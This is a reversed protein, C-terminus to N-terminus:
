KQLAKCAIIGSEKNSSRIISSCLYHVEIIKKLSSVQQQNISSLCRNGSNSLLNDTTSVVSDPSSNTTTISDNGYSSPPNESKLPPGNQLRSQLLPMYNSTLLNQLTSTPPENLTLVPSNPLIFENLSEQQSVSPVCNGDIWADLDMWSDRSDTGDKEEIRNPVTTDAIASGIIAAIDDISSMDVFEVAQEKNDYIRVSSISDPCPISMACSDALSSCMKGDISSEPFLKVDQYCSTNNDNTTESYLASDPLCTSSSVINQEELIREIGVPDEIGTISKTSLPRVSFSSTQNLNTTQLLVFCFLYYSFFNLIRNTDENKLM